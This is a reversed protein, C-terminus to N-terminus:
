PHSFIDPVKWNLYHPMRRGEHAAKSMDHAKAKCFSEFTKYGTVDQLTRMAEFDMKAGKNPEQHKMRPIPFEDETYKWKGTTLGYSLWAISVEFRGEDREAGVPMALYKMVDQLPLDHMDDGWPDSLEQALALVSYFLAAVFPVFYISNRDENVLPISLLLAHVSMKSIALKATPNRVQLLECLSNLSRMARDYLVQITKEKYDWLHSSVMFNTLVYQFEQIEFAWLVEPQFLVANQFEGPILNDLRWSFDETFYALSKQFLVVMWAIFCQTSIRLKPDITASCLSVRLTEVTERFDLLAAMAVKYRQAADTMTLGTLFAALFQISNTASSRRDPFGLYTHLSIGASYEFYLVAGAYLTYMLSVRWTVSCFWHLTGRSGFFPVRSKDRIKKNIVHHLEQRADQSSRSMDETPVAAYAGDMPSSKM